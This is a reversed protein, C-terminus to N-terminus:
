ATIMEPSANIDITDPIVFLDLVNEGDVPCNYRIGSNQFEYSKVNDPIGIGGFVLVAEGKENRLNWSAIKGSEMDIKGGSVQYRSSFVSDREFVCLIGKENKDRFLAALYDGRKETGLLRLDDTEFYTEATATLKEPSNESVSVFGHCGIFGCVLLLVCIVATVTIRFFNKKTNM